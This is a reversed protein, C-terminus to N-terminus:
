TLNKVWRQKLEEPVTNNKRKRSGTWNTGGCSADELVFNSAKLSTGPESELIYTIIKRYGMDKAIRSCAGYLMSCCNGHETVCLRNIELTYGDDLVRSIPRGCIATGILVEEGDVVKSLGVAFKCGTVSDHHRHNATVFANADKLTMPIIHKSKDEQWAKECLERDSKAYLVGFETFDPMRDILAELEDDSIFTDKFYSVTTVIDLEEDHQIVAYLVNERCKHKGAFILADKRYQSVKALATELDAGEEYAIRNSLGNWTETNCSCFDYTTEGDTILM